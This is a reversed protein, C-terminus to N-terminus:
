PSLRRVQGPLLVSETRGHEIASQLSAEVHNPRFRVHKTVEDVAGQATEANVEWHETAETEDETWTTKVLWIPM